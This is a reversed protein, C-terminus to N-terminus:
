PRGVNKLFFISVKQVPDHYHRVFSGPQIVGNEDIVLSGLCNLFIFNFELSDPDINYPCYFEPYISPKAYIFGQFYVKKKNTGHIFTAKLQSMAPACVNLDREIEDIRMNFLMVDKELYLKPKKLQSNLSKVINM